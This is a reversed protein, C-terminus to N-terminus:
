RPRHTFASGPEPDGDDEADRELDPKEPIILVLGTTGSM